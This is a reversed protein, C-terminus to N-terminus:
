DAVRKANTRTHALRAFERAPKGDLFLRLQAFTKFKLRNVDYAM